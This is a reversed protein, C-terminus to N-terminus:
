DKRTAWTNWFSILMYYACGAIAGYRLVPIEQPYKWLGILSIICLISIVAINLYLMKDTRSPYLFKIPMFHMATLVVVIVANAIASTKLLFFMLFVVFNWLVPFGIFHLDETVWNKKGYYLVSSLLILVTCPFLMSETTLKAEYFFFAPIIAYTSFDIVYDMMKGDFNPLREKVKFLRAFTGDVADIVFAVILYFMAMRWDHAAVAKLALFAFVIGSATFLHVCWPLINNM